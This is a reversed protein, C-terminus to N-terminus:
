QVRRLRTGTSSLARFDHGQMDTKLYWFLLREPISSLVSDVSVVPVMRKCKNMKCQRGFAVTSSESLSSSVGSDSYKNMLAIGTTDSVAAPITWLGDRPKILHPVIPEFAISAFSTNSENKSGDAPPAMLPSTHAGINVYVFHVNAPLGDLLRAHLTASTSSNTTQSQARVVLQTAM